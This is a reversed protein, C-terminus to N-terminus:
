ICDKLFDKCVHASSAVLTGRTPIDLIIFTLGLRSYRFCTDVSAEQFPILSPAGSFYLVSDTEVCLMSYSCMTSVPVVIIIM